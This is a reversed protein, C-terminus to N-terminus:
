SDARVTRFGLAVLDTIKAPDRSTLTVQSAAGRRALMKAVLRGLRGNAGTMVIMHNGVTLLTIGVDTRPSHM